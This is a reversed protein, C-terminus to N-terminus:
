ETSFMEERLKSASGWYPLSRKARVSNDVPTFKTLGGDTKFSIVPNGTWTFNPDTKFKAWRLRKTGDEDWGSEVVRFYKDIVEAWFNRNILQAGESYRKFHFAPIASAKGGNGLNHHIWVNDYRYYSAPRDPIFTFYEPPYLVDAEAVLVYETDIFDLGARIQKFQNFYSAAHKGICLNKGFDIPEQSVSVLPLSGIHKLINDKIKNEFSPTEKNATYYLVTIM